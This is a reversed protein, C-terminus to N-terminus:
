NGALARQVRESLVGKPHRALFKKARQKAEKMRGLEVLALVAYAAREPGFMGGRFESDGQEALRLARAPDSELARRMENTALIERQALDPSLGRSPKRRPPDSKPEPEAETEPAPDPVAPLAESELPDPQEEHAVEAEALDVPEVPEVPEAPAVVPTPTPAQATEDSSRNLVLAVPIAVGIVVLIGKAMTSLGATKSVTSAQAAAEAPMQQKAAEFRPMAVAPDFDTLDALGLGQLARGAPGAAPDDRLRVPDSEQSM